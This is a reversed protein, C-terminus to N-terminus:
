VKSLFVMQGFHYYSHELMGELNQLISGYKGDAFDQHLQEDTRHELFNLLWIAETKIGLKLQEWTEFNGRHTPFSFRDSIEIKGTKLGHNIGQLYYHLHFVLSFISNVKPPPSQIEEWPLEQLFSCVSKGTIWGGELFLESIRKQIQRTILNDDM